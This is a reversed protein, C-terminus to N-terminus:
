KCGGPAGGEVFVGYPRRLFFNPPSIYYIEAGCALRAAPASQKKRGEEERRILYIPARLALMCNEFM